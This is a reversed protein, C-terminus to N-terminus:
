HGFQNGRMTALAQHTTKQFARRQFFFLFLSGAQLLNLNGRAGLAVQDHHADTAERGQVAEHVFGVPLAHAFLHGQGVTGEPGHRHGQVDGSFVGLAQVGAVFHGQDALALDHSSQLDFFDIFHGFGVLLPFALQHELAFAGVGFLEPFHGGIVMGAHLHDQGLLFVVQGTGHLDQGLAFEGFLEGAHVHGGCLQAFLHVFAAPLLNGGQLQAVGHVARVFVQGLDAHFHAVANHDVGQHAGQFGTVDRGFHAYFADVGQDVLVEHFVEDDLGAIRQVHAIGTGAFGQQVGGEALVVADVVQQDATIVGTHAVEVAHEFGLFDEALDRHGGFFALTQEALRQVDVPGEVALLAVAHGGHTGAGVALFVADDQGTGLQTLHQGFASFHRIM